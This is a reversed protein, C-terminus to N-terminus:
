QFSPSEESPLCKLILSILDESRPELNNLSKFVSSANERSYKYYSLSIIICVLCHSSWFKMISPKEFIVSHTSSAINMYILDFKMRESSIRDLLDKLINIKAEEEFDEEEKQIHSRLTAIFSDLLNESDTKRKVLESVSISCLPFINNPSVDEQNELPFRKSNSKEFEDYSTEILKSNQNEIEKNLSDSEEHQSNIAQHQRKIFPKIFKSIKKQKKPFKLDQKIKSCELENDQPVCDDSLNPYRGFINESSEFVLDIKEFVINEEHLDFITTCIKTTKNNCPSDIGSMKDPLGDSNKPSKKSKKGSTQLSSNSKIPKQLMQEFELNINDNEPLESSFCISTQPMSYTKHDTPCISCFSKYPKINIEMGEINAKNNRESGFIVNDLL